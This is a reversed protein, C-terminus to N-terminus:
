ASGATHRKVGQSNIRHTIDGLPCRFVRKLAQLSTRHDAADQTEWETQFRIIGYKSTHTCPVLPSCHSSLSCTFM